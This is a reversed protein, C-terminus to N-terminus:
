TRRPRTPAPRGKSGHSRSLSYLALGALVVASATGGRGTGAGAGLGFRMGAAGMGIDIGEEVFFSKFASAVFVASEVVGVGAFMLPRCLGAGECDVGLVGDPVNRSRSSPSLSSLSSSSSSSTREEKVHKVIERIRVIIM